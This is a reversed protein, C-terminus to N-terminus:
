SYIQHYKKIEKCVEFDNKILWSITVPNPIKNVEKIAKKIWNKGNFKKTISFDSDYEIIIKRHKLCIHNGGIYYKAGIVERSFCETKM